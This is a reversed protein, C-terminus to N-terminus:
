RALIIQVIYISNVHSRVAPYELTFLKPIFFLSVCEQKAFLKTDCFYYFSIEKADRYHFFLDYKAFAICKIRVRVTIGLKIMFM